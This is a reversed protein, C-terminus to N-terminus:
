KRLIFYDKKIYIMDLSSERFTEMGGQGRGQFNEKKSSDLNNFKKFKYQEQYRM